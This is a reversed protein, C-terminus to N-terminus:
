ENAKVNEWNLKVERVGSERGFYAVVMPDQRKGRSDIYLPGTDTQFTRNLFGQTMVTQDVESASFMSGDGHVASHWTENLVQAKSFLLPYAGKFFPFQRIYEYSTQVSLCSLMKNNM